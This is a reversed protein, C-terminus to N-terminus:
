INLLSTDLGMKLTKRIVRGPISGLEWPGNAFVVTRLNNTYFATVQNNELQNCFITTM